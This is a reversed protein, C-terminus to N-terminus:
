VRDFRKGYGQKPLVALIIGIVGGAFPIIILFAWWGSLNADHLRRVFVAIGPVLTALAYLLYVVGIVTSAPTPRPDTPAAVANVMEIAIGVAFFIVLALAAAWWFESRSARGHFVAYKTFFRKIGEQPTARYIPKDSPHRSAAIEAADVADQAFDDFEATVYAITACGPDSPHAANV